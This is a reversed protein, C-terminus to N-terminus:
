SPQLNLDLHMGPGSILFGNAEIEKFGMSLYFLKEQPTPSPTRVRIREYHLDRAKAIISDALILGIGMGRFQPRVYLRKMECISEEFKRLAVCGAAQTGYSAILLSGKPSVYEAPLNALEESFSQQCLGISAPTSIEAFLDAAQILYKDVSVQIIELMFEVIILTFVRAAVTIAAWSLGM